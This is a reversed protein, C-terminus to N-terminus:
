ASLAAVADAVTDAERHMRLTAAAAPGAPSATGGSEQLERALAAPPEFSSGRKVSTRWPLPATRRVM